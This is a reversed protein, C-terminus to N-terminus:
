EARSAASEKRRLEEEREVIYGRTLPVTGLKKAMQIQFVVQNEYEFASQAISLYFEWMRCFREDYLAKAEDRHSLFRARWQELTKAYHLRLVEIDTVILGAREIAPTIESLSPIYGGPFIYKLVWPSVASPVGARGITHLLAVGDDALISALKQFFADYASVGVHEFMGVSVIRDFREEVERYDQFRLDVASSGDALQRKAFDLQERSLTIGTVRADCYKALYLALGGWGCGIDLVRAGPKLLLKAAIHRRKARQATDLDAEPTEFYACSYQRDADLFLGYLENGIDYHYAANATARGITNRMWRQIALRTKQLIEVWRPSGGRMMNRSAIAIVDYISGRTVDIRGDMYLEGFALEPDRFLATKVGEDTIKVLPPVGTGDGVIYREGNPEEIELSGERILQSTFNRFFTGMDGGAAACLGASVDAKPLTESSIHTQTLGVSLPAAPREDLGARTTWTHGM